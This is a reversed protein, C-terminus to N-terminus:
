CKAKFFRICAEFFIFLLINFNFLGSLDVQIAAMSGALIGFISHVFAITDSQDTWAWKLDSLIVMFAIFTVCVVFVMATRHVFYWVHRNMISLNNFMDRYYRAFLFGISAVLIWALTMLCGHARARADSDRMDLPASM